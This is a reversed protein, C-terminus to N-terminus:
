VDPLLLLGFEEKVLERALERYGDPRHGEPDPFIRSAQGNACRLCWSDRETQELQGELYHVVHFSVMPDTWGHDVWAIGGTAIDFLHAAPRKGVNPNEVYLVIGSQSLCGPRMENAVINEGHWKDVV